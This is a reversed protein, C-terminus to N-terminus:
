TSFSDPSGARTLGTARLTRQLNIGEKRRGDERMKKDSGRFHEKLIWNRGLTLDM